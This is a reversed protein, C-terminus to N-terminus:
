LNQRDADGIVGLFANSRALHGTEQPRTTAGLLLHNRSGNPASSSSAQTIHDGSRRRRSRRYRTTLWEGGDDFDHIRHDRAEVLSAQVLAETVSRDRHRATVTKDWTRPSAATPSPFLALPPTAARDSSSIAPKTILEYENITNSNSSWSRTKQSALEAKMPSHRCCTCCFQARGRSRPMTRHEGM